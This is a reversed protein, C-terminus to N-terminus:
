EAEFRKCTYSISWNNPDKDAKFESPRKAMGDANRRICLRLQNGKVEYLGILVMPFGLPGKGDFDFAKTAPNVKFTGTLSLRKGERTEEQTFTNGEIIIRRAQEVIDKKPMMAGHRDVATALWIGQLEETGNTSGDKQDATTETFRLTTVLEAEPDFTITIPSGKKVRDLGQAQPAVDLTMTKVSGGAQREITITRAAVDVGQVLGTLEVGNTNASLWLFCCACGLLMKRQTSLFRFM